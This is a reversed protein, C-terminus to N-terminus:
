NLNLNILANKEIEIKVEDYRIIGWSNMLVSFLRADAPPFGQLKYGLVLGDESVAYVSINNSNFVLITADKGWTMCNKDDGFDTRLFGNAKLLTIIQENFISIAFMNFNKNKIRGM